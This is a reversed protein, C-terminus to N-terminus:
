KKSNERLENWERKLMAYQFESGWKGKFFINEIFHGEERFGISKLLQISARNEADVIEVVRHIKIEDFLFALIGLLVEKAYGKRQELHSITIGIEAIRIDYLDLKIACDGILKGTASNEIAYQVWEGANGFYKTSNDKIFEEAQETTMVDFGQYKTVEPNSRYTMFDSLDSLALHRINLRTTNIYLPKM